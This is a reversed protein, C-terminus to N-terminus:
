VRPGGERLFAQFEVFVLVDSFFQGEPPVSVLIDLVKPCALSPLCLAFGAFGAVSTRAMVARRTWVSWSASCGPRFVVVPIVARLAADRAFGAWEVGSGYRRRARCRLFWVHHRADRAQRCVLSCLVLHIMVLLFGACFMGSGNDDVLAAVDIM